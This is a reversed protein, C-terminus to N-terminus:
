RSRERRGAIAMTLLAPALVALSAAAVARVTWPPLATVVQSARLEALRALGCGIALICAAVLLTTATGAEDADPEPRWSPAALAVAVVVPLVTQAVAWGNDALSAPVALVDGVAVVVCAAAVVAILGVVARAFAREGARCAALVLVPLVMVAAAGALWPWVAVPPIWELTGQLALDRDSVRFPVSWELVTHVVDPAREVLPPDGRAMWHIRHDHWQWRPDDDVKRWEPAAQADTGPPAARQGFRDANLYTAPSRRNEFVGDPGVRLFPEGDYGLVVVEADGTNHVQLLADAGLVRWTVGQVETAGAPRGGTMRVTGVVSSRFNSADPTSGHALAPTGPLATLLLMVGTVTAARMAAVHVTM